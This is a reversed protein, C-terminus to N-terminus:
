IKNTWKSINSKIKLYIEQSITALRAIHNQRISNELTYLMVKPFSWWGPHCIYLSFGLLWWLLWQLSKLEGSVIWLCRLRCYIDCFSVCNNNTLRGDIVLIITQGSTTSEKKIGVYALRWTQHVNGYLYISVGTGNLPRRSYLTREYHWCGSAWM